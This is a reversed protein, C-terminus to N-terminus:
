KGSNYINQDERVRLGQGVTAASQNLRTSGTPVRHQIVSDLFSEISMPQTVEFM